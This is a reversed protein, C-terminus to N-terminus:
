IGARRAAATSGITANLYSYPDPETAATDGGGVSIFGNEAALM